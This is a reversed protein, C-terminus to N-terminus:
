KDDGKLIRAVITSNIRGLNEAMRTAEDLTAIVRRNRKGFPPDADELKGLADALGALHKAQTEYADALTKLQAMTLKYLEVQTRDPLGDPNTPPKEADGQVLGLRRAAQWLGGGKPFGIAELPDFFDSKPPTRDYVLLL